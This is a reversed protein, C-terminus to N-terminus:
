VQLQRHNRCFIATYAEARTM